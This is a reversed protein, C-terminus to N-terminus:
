QCVRLLIIQEKKKEINDLTIKFQAKLSLCKIERVVDHQNTHCTHSVNKGHVALLGVNLNPIM